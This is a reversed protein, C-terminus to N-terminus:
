SRATSSLDAASEGGSMRRTRVVVSERDLLRRKYELGWRYGTLRGDAGVARHCPILVALPNSGNARGVARSALPQGLRRAIESYSRTVGRPIACLERWVALQFPTARIDIALEVLFNSGIVLSIAREALDRVAGDERVIMADALDLRLESELFADSEHVGVWCIGYDTTAILIRGFDSGVITYGIRAGRGRHGYSAGVINLQASGDDYYRVCNYSKLDM